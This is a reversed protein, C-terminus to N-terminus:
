ALEALITNLRLVVAPEHSRADRMARAEAVLMDGCRYKAMQASLFQEREANESGTEGMFHTCLVARMELAELPDTPEVEMQRYHNQMAEWSMPAVPQPASVSVAAAAPAAAAPAAPPTPNAPQCATLIVATLGIAFIRSM